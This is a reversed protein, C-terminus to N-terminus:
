QRKWAPLIQKDVKVGQTAPFRSQMLEIDQKYNDRITVDWTGKSYGVLSADVLPLLGAVPEGQQRTRLVADVQGLYYVHGPQANVTMKMPITSVASVIVSMGCNVSISELTQSGGPVRMSLIYENFDKAASRVPNLGARPHIKGGFAAREFDPQFTPNVKNSAKITMLM